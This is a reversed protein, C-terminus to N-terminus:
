RSRPSRAMSRSRLRESAAELGIEHLRRNYKCSRRRSASASIEGAWGAEWRFYFWGLAAVVGVILLLLALGFGLTSPQSAVAQGNLTPVLRRLVAALSLVVLWAIRWAFRHHLLKFRFLDEANLRYQVSLAEDEAM